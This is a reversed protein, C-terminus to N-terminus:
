EWAMLLDALVASSGSTTAGLGLVISQAANQMNIYTRSRTGILTHTATAALGGIEGKFAWAICNFQEYRGGVIQIAPYMLTDVGAGNLASTSFDYSGMGISAGGALISDGTNYTWINPSGFRGTITACTHANTGGLGQGSGVVIVGRGDPEGDADVTRSILVAAGAMGATTHGHALAMGFFGDTACYYHPLTSAFASTSATSMIVVSSPNTLTGSGNSGTGIQVRLRPFRTNAGATGWFLKIFIPATAQLSDNFRWIQYGADSNAAARTVTATDIQGTDATQVLGVAAMRTTYEVLIARFGADSAMTLAPSNTFTTM